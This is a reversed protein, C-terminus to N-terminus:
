AAPLELLSLATEIQGALAKRSVPQRSVVRLGQNILMVHAALREPSRELPYDGAAQAQEFCDAFVSEMRALERSAVASLEQDVEALELVTNVMMCGRRARERPVELLTRRFFTRIATLSRQEEWAEVLMQRTRDSFLVLAEAFLARKDGFAAYFSSRGISMADLLDTLSTAGYGKRWFLQMASSRALDRDFELPRAM